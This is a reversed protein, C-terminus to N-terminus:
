QYFHQGGFLLFSTMEWSMQIKWSNILTGQVCNQQMLFSSIVSWVVGKESRKPNLIRKLTLYLILRPLKGNRMGQPAVRRTQFPIAIADFQLYKINLQFKSLKTALHWDRVPFILSTAATDQQHCHRLSPTKKKPRIYNFASTWCNFPSSTIVHLTHYIKFKFRPSSSLRSNSRFMQYILLLKSPRLQQLCLCIFTPPSEGLIWCEALGQVWLGM